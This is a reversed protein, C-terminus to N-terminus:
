TRRAPPELPRGHMKQLKVNTCKRRSNGSFPSASERACRAKHNCGHLEGLGDKEALGDIRQHPLLLRRHDDRQPREDSAAANECTDDNRDECVPKGVPAPQLHHCVGEVPRNRKRKLIVRRPARAAGDVRQLEATLM